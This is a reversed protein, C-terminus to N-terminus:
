TWGNVDSGIVDLLAEEMWQRAENESRADLCNLSAMM